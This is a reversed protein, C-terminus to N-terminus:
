LQPTHGARCWSSFANGTARLTVYADMIAACAYAGKLDVGLSAFRVTFGGQRQVTLIAPEQVGRAGDM